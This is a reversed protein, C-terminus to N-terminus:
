PVLGHERQVIGAAVERLTQFFLARPDMRSGTRREIAAAVRLSLLSHGGLEFFNDGPGVESAGLIDRWIEALIQEIGEALPEAQRHARKGVQFPDPLRRRDVKGSPSLPVTELTVFLAPVMYDPLRARLYRRLESTTPESGAEYALYAVLAAGAGGTSVSVYAQRIAPNSSLAAEIEGLEIRFGRIKVQGDRRGIFDLTGDARWRALDGTRYVRERRGEITLEVFKEASLAPLNRYGRAVGEGAIVLEGPAGIPALTGSPELVYVRENALPKGVPVRAGGLDAATLRHATSWITTETPGYVNWLEDVKGLLMGVLDLPMAEGGCLAKLNAKGQWGEELLLRWTTPTAQLLHVDHEEILEALAAGDVIDGDSALITQGGVTLPLWLELGSIDFAPTTVALLREGPGFSLELRMAELFAALNGHTVEVGKPKGTSGSTYMLYATDQPGVSVQLATAVAADITDADEDLLVLDAATFRDALDSTTVICTVDADELVLRVRETPHAPDIPVYAAGTKLVAALAIPLDMGRALCVAVRSGVAAGRDALVRAIRNARAEVGAYDLADSSDSVAVAQPSRSATEALQHHVLRARDFVLDSANWDVAIRRAEEPSVLSVDCLKAEPNNCAASLLRLLQEHMRAISSEDFLDADYEYAALMDGAHAGSNVSSLELSLDFRAAGTDADIAGSSTTGSAPASSPQFNMLTFLTQFIPAYAATRPPNVAEVVMDFPLAGHRFARLTTQKTRELLDTFSPSGSLDGRLAINNIFCGVVDTLFEDDRTAVPTGIVVDDQGSLRSLLTQWVAMVAMFLTAGRQRAVERLRDIAAAEIHSSYRGGRTAGESGRPRDTPLDLVTPAGALAERWFAVHQAFGRQQVKAQEWAAFDSYHLSLPSLRSPRSTSRAEYLASLDRWVIDLSWGDAVIHHVVFVVLHDDPAFRVVRMLALRGEALDFRTRLADRGFDKVAREIDTPPTASLDVVDLSVLARPLIDLVPEGKAARICMRFVEHRAFLDDVAVALLDLNIPERVRLWSGINYRPSGPDLQDLFWLRKQAFSLPPERDPSRPLIRGEKAVPPADAGRQSLVSIIADRNEAIERRSDEDIANRPARFRLTGAEVWLDVGCTSLRLVIAEALMFSQSMTVNSVPSEM